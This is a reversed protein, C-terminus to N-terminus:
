FKLGDSDDKIKQMMNTQKQQLVRMDDQIKQKQLILAQYATNTLEVEQKLEDLTQQQSDAEGFVVELCDGVLKIEKKKPNTSKRHIEYFNRGWTEDPAASLKFPIVWKGTGNEKVRDKDVSVVKIAAYETGM